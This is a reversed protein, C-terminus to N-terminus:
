RWRRTRCSWVCVAPPQAPRPGAVSGPVARARRGCAPQVRSGPRARAPGRRAAAARSQFACCAPSRCSATAECSPYPSPPCPHRGAAPASAPAAPRPLGRRSSPMSSGEEAPGLRARRIHRIHCGYSRRLWFAFVRLRAYVYRILWTYRYEHLNEGDDALLAADSFRREGGGEGDGRVRRCARRRTRDRDAPRAAKQFSVRCSSAGATMAM